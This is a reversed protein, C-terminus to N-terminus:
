RNRKEKSAKYGILHHFHHSCRSQEGTMNATVTLRTKQTPCFFSTFKDFSDKFSKMELDEMDAQGKFVGSRSTKGVNNRM